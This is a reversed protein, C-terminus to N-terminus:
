EVPAGGDQGGEGGDEPMGLWGQLAEVTGVGGNEKEGGESGEVTKERSSPLSLGAGGGGERSGGPAMGTWDFVSAGEQQGDQQKRRASGTSPPRKPSASESGGGFWGEAGISPPAQGARPSPSPPIGEGSGGSTASAGREDSRAETNGDGAKEKDIQSSEKLGGEGDQSAGGGEEESRVALEEMNCSFLVLGDPLVNISISMFAIDDPTFLQPELLAADEDADMCYHLHLNDFNWFPAHELLQKYPDLNYVELDFSDFLLALLSHVQLSAHEKGGVAEPAGAPAGGAVAAFLPASTVQTGSAATPAELDDGTERLTLTSAPTSWLTPVTNKLTKLWAQLQTQSKFGSQGFLIPARFSLDDNFLCDIELSQRPKPDHAASTKDEQGLLVLHPMGRIYEIELLNMIKMGMDGTIREENRGRSQNEDDAEEKEKDAIEVVSANTETHGSGKRGQGDLRITDFITYLFLPWELDEMMVRVLVDEERYVQVTVDALVSENFLREGAFIVRSSVIGSGETQVDQEVVDPGAVVTVYPVKKLIKQKERELKSKPSKPRTPNESEQNEAEMLMEKAEEDRQRQEDAKALRQQTKALEQRDIMRLDREVNALGARISATRAVKEEQRRQMLTLVQQFSHILHEHLQSNAHPHLHPLGPSAESSSEGSDGTPRVPGGVSFAVASAVPMGQISGGSTLISGRPQSGQDEKEHSPPRSSDNTHYQQSSYPNMQGGNLLAGMPVPMNSLMTVRDIDNREAELQLELLRLEELFFNHITALSTSTGSKLETEELLKEVERESAHLRRELDDKEAIGRRTLRQMEMRHRSVVLHMRSRLGLLHRRLSGKELRLRVLHRKLLKAHEKGGLVNFVVTWSPALGASVAASEAATSFSQLSRKWLIKHAALRSASINNPVHYPVRFLEVLLRKFLVLASRSQRNGDGGAQLDAQEKSLMQGGQTMVGEDGGEGTMLRRGRTSQGGEGNEKDPLPAQSVESQQAQAAATVLNRTQADQFNGHRRAKDALEVFRERWFVAQHRLDTSAASEELASNERMLKDVRLRLSALENYAERLMLFQESDRLSSSEAAAAANRGAEGAFSVPAPLFSALTRRKPDVLSSSPSSPQATGAAAASGRELQVTTRASLVASDKQLAPFLRFNGKLKRREAEAKEKESKYKALRATANRNEEALAANEEKLKAIAEGFAQMQDHMVRIEQEKARLKVNAQTVSVVADQHQTRLKAFADELKSVKESEAQRKTIALELQARLANATEVQAQQRRILLGKEERHDTVTKELTKSELAYRQNEMRLNNVKNKLENVETAYMDREIRATERVRLIEKKVAELEKEQAAIHNHSVKPGKM